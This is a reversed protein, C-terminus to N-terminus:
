FQFQAYSLGKIFKSDIKLSNMLKINITDKKLLKIVKQNKRRIILFQRALNMLFTYKM